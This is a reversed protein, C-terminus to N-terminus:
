LKNAIFRQLAFLIVFLAVSITHFILLGRNDGFLDPFYTYMTVEIAITVFWIVPGWSFLGWLGLATVPHLVALVPAVLKWHTAMTDFQYDPGEYFGILRLWYQLAFFVFFLALCRLLLVHALEVISPTQTSADSNAM